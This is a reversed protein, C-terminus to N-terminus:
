SYWFEILINYLIERRVSNYVKKFDRFIQCVTENYGWGVWYRLFASLRILLQDTVHVGYVSIIRLLKM